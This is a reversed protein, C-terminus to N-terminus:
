PTLPQGAWRLIARFVDQERKSESMLKLMQDSFKDKEVQAAVISGSTQNQHSLTNIKDIIQM